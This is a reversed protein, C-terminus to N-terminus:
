SLINQGLRQSLCGREQGAEVSGGPHGARRRNKKGENRRRRGAQRPEPGLMGGGVLGTGATGPASDESKRADQDSTAWLVKLKDSM